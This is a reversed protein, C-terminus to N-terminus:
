PWVAVVIEKVRVQEYIAGILKQKETDTRSAAINMKIQRCSFSLFCRLMM